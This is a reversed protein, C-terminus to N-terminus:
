RVPFQRFGPLVSTAAHTAPERKSGVSEIEDLNGSQRAIRFQRRSKALVSKSLM